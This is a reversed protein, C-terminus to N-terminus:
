RRSAPRVRRAVPETRRLPRGRADGRDRRRRALGIDLAAAWGDDVLVFPALIRTVVRDLAPRTSRVCSALRRAGAPHRAAGARRRADGLVLMLASVDASKLQAVAARAAQDGDVVVAHLADGLASAVAVEAGAEIEIHDALRGIMGALSVEASSPTGDLALALTEARARWGRRM